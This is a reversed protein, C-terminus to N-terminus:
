REGEGSNLAPAVRKIFIVIGFVCLTHQLIEVFVWVCKLSTCLTIDMEDLVVVFQSSTQPSVNEPFACFHANRGNPM